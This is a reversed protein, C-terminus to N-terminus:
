HAVLRLHVSGTGSVTLGAASFSSAFAIDDASAGTKRMADTVADLNVFAAMTAGSLDPLAAAFGPVGSLKAGSTSTLEDLYAQDSALALGSGTSKYKIPLDMGTNSFGTTVKDLVRAAADGDGKTLVGFKPSAADSGFSASDLGVTVDDGLLTELDTPLNLGFEDQLISIPDGGGSGAGFFGSSLTSSVRNWQQDIATKSVSSTFGGITGAPLGGLSQAANAAAKPASAGGITKAIVDATHGSFRLTFAARGSFDHAFGLGSTTTQGSLETLDFWGSAVGLSGVQAMDSRYQPASALSGAQAAALAKDAAKQSPAVLAYGKYFDIGANPDFRAIGLKAQGDDTSQLVLLPQPGAEDSSQAVSADAPLAAVAMRQGLWPKVDRDFDVDSPLSDTDKLLSDFLGKRWDGGASLLGGSKPLKGLFRSAALKQSASPNLDLKVFAIATSPTVADPQTGGGNLKSYAAYSVGGGVLVLAAVGATIVWRLRGRRAPAATGPPWAPGGPYSPMPGAQPGYPNPPPYGTPNQPAYPAPPTYTSSPQGDWPQSPLETIPPQSWQNHEAPPQAPPQSWQDPRPEFPESM